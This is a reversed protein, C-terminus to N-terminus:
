PPTGPNRLAVTRSALLRPFRSTEADQARNAYALAPMPAAAVDAGESRVLVWFRASRLRAGAPLADLSVYGLVKSGDGDPDEIGVEVQLDEVGPVLEEDQFTPSTGGILRKRRLSPRGPSGTADESVYFVSVALDNIQSDEGLLRQGDALLRAAFRQSELQLRGADPSSPTAEAARLILTDAGPMARGVPSPGCGLPLDPGAAFRGDAGALPRALDLALSAGCTGGVVLQPPPESGAPTMGAVESGPAVLGLYGAMRAERALLDLAARATEELQVRAQASRYAGRGRAVLTLASALALLTLAVAVMLEVLTFGAARTM